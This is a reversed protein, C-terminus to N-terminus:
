GCRVRLLLMIEFSIFITDNVDATSVSHFKLHTPYGVGAGVRAEEAADANVFLSWHLLFQVCTHVNPLTASVKSYIYRGVAEPLWPAQYFETRREEEPNGAVDTMLQSTFFLFRHPWVSVCKSVDDIKRGECSVKLRPESRPSEGESQMM